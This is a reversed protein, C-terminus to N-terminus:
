WHHPPITSQLTTINRRMNAKWIEDFTIMQMARFRKRDTWNILSPRLLTFIISEIAHIQAMRVLKGWVRTQVVILGKGPLFQCCHAVTQSIALTVLEVIGAGM